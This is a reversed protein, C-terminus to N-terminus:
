RWIPGCWCCAGGLGALLALYGGFRGALARALGYSAVGLALMMWGEKGLSSPWYLLSPLLIVLFAYRRGDGVPFAIRFARFFLYCGLFNFWAFVFFSGLETPGAIAYVVTTIWPVLGHFVGTNPTFVHLHRFVHYNNSSRWPRTPARTPWGGM